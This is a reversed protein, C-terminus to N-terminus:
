HPAILLCGTALLGAGIVSALRPSGLREVYIAVTVIAMASLDMVGLVLLCATLPSCCYVCQLGLRLGAQWADGGATRRCCHLLRAKWPTFQALGAFLVVWGGLRPIALSTLLAGVPFLLAGCAIWVGFYATAFRLAAWTEAYHRLHPLIVPLMMAMMMVSWMGLFTVATKWWGQGPMPLWPMGECPMASMAGCWMVTVVASAIYVLAATGHVGSDRAINMM